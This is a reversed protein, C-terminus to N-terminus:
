TQVGGNSRKVDQVRRATAREGMLSRVEEEDLGALAAIRSRYHARVVPDLATRKVVEVLTRISAARQYIDLTEYADAAQDILWDCYPKADDVLRQFADPGERRIFSDPDDGVVALPEGKWDIVRIHTAEGTMEM